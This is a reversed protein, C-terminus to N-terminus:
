HYRKLSKQMAEENIFSNRIIYISYIRFSYSVEFNIIHTFNIYYQCGKAFLPILMQFKVNFSYVGFITFAWYVGQARVKTYKEVEGWVKSGWSWIFTCVRYRTRVCLFIESKNCKLIESKTFMKWINIYKWQFFIWIYSTSIVKRIKM